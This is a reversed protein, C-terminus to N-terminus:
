KKSKEKLTKIEEKLQKIIIGTLEKLEAKSTTQLGDPRSKQYNQNFAKFSSKIDAKAMLGKLIGTTLIWGRDNASEVFGTFGKIRGQKLRNEYYRYVVDIYRQEVKEVLSDLSMLEEIYKSLVAILKEENTGTMLRVEVKNELRSLAIRDKDSCEYVTTENFRGKIKINGRETIDKNTEFATSSEKKRKLALTELMLRFLQLKDELKFSFDTAIDVRILLGKEDYKLTFDELDKMYELSEKVGTPKVGGNIARSPKFPIRKNGNKTYTIRKDLVTTDLEINNTDTEASYEFGITDIGTAIIEKKM